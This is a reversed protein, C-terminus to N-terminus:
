EDSGEVYGQADPARACAAKHPSASGSHRNCGDDLTLYQCCNARGKKCQHAARNGSSVRQAPRFPSYREQPPGSRPDGKTEAYGNIFPCGLFSPENFWVEFADFVSLLQQSASLGPKSTFQRLLGLAAQDQRAFYDTILEEKSGYTNYFTMKAVGSREVIADVGSSTLGNKNFLAAAATMIKERAPQEGAPRRGM